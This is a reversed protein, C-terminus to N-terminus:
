SRRRRRPGAREGSLRLREVRLDPVYRFHRESQTGVVVGFDLQLATAAVALDNAPIMTGAAGPDVLASTDIVLGM